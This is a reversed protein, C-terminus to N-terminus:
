LKDRLIASLVEHGVDENEIFFVIAQESESAEVTKVIRRWAAINPHQFARCKEAPAMLRIALELQDVAFTYIHDGERYGCIAALLMAPFDHGSQNSIEIHIEGDLSMVGSGHYLPPTFNSLKKNLADIAEHIGEVTAMDYQQIVDVGELADKWLVQKINKLKGM